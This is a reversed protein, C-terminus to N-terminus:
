LGYGLEQMQRGCLLRFWLRAPASLHRNWRSVAGVDIGGASGKARYSSNHVVQDLMADSYPIGVFDCLRQVSGKPDAALDEFRVLLYRDPYRARYRRDLAVMQRWSAIVSTMAYLDFAPGLRRAVRGVPTLREAREKRRLSVYIARPDRFTHIVRAAPFWGLLLPVAHIHEPTKEGRIARGYAFHELALDFLARESRDSDRLRSEFESRNATRALRAWFSKGQQKWIFDVVRQLGDDRRLDGIRHLRERFGRRRSLGLRTPASFFHSEGGLRIRGSANLIGRTLTSGTRPLGVVFVHSVTGPSVAEAGPSSHSGM